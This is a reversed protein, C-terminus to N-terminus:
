YQLSLIAQRAKDAGRLMQPFIRDGVAPPISPLDHRVALYRDLIHPIDPAPVEKKYLDMAQGTMGKRRCLEFALRVEPVEGVCEFPKHAGLGLLQSFWHQAEPVDFLNKRFIAGATDSPLYAMYNVWVYACKACEGCWPKRVNCSHTNKVASADNNLLNFILVDHIPKLISFYSVNSIFERQIYRNLLLEAELSKGWQHNVHEGTREWWLNGADASLEHALVIYQYGYQLVVPLAGFVSAPTEAHILGKVGSEEQLERLSSEWSENYISMQHRQSPTSEDLLGNILRHQMQGDGYHPHSYAFTSFSVGGREILKMAVLSDKGGGSFILADVPAHSVKAPTPDNNSSTGKFVPGFYDPLDNEYRWQAGVKRFITRWFKEFARTRFRSFDGFDFTEPLLSALAIAELAMLQFCLRDMLEPGYRTELATIDVDGYCYTKTLRLEDLKFSMAIEHQGRRCSEMLLYRVRRKGNNSPQM